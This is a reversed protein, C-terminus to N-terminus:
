RRCRSRGRRGADRKKGANLLDAAGQLDGSAPVIDPRRVGVASHVTGHKHPPTEIADLEQVDHPIVLCTVTREVTAIRM